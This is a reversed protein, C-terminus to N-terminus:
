LARRARVRSLEQQLSEIESRLTSLAEGAHLRALVARCMGALRQYGYLGLSGALQHLSGETQQADDAQLASQIAEAKQPLEAVYQQLLSEFGERPPESSYHHPGEM